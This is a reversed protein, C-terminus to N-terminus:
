PLAPATGQIAETLPAVAQGEEHITGTVIFRAGAAALAGAQEPTRIGGGVILPIPSAAAVARILPMPLPRPAGSGAELYAVDFGLCAAAQVHAM